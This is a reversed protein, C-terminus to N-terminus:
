DTESLSAAQPTNRGSDEGGLLRQELLAAEDRFVVGALHVYQRTTAMSRHGAVGMIAMPSVGAAALNTLAGHRADHFPRVYDTIGAAALAKRFEGAYWEHDLKSGREPHRDERRRRSRPPQYGSHDQAWLEREHESGRRRQM